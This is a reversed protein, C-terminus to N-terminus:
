GNGAGSIASQLRALAPGSWSEMEAVKLVLQLDDRPVVVATQPIVPEPPSTYLKTGPMLAHLKKWDETSFWVGTREDEPDPMLVTAVPEVGDSASVQPAPILVKGALFEMLEDADVVTRRSGQVEASVSAKSIWEHLDAVAKDSEPKPHRLSEIEDSMETIRRTLAQITGAANEAFIAHRESQPALHRTGFWEAIEEALGGAGKDNNGDIQRIVQALEDILSADVVFNCDGKHGRYLCCRLWNYEGAKKANCGLPKNQSEAASFSCQQGCVTCLKDAGPSEKECKCWLAPNALKAPVCGSALNNEILVFDNCLASAVAQAQAETPFTIVTDGPLLDLDNSIPTGVPLNHSERRLAVAARGDIVGFCLTLSGTGCHLPKARAELETNLHKILDELQEVKLAPTM